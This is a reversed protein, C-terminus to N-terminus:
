LEEVIKDLQTYLHNLDKSNDVVYDARATKEDDSMQNDIRDQVQKASIGDRSQVRSIRVDKDAVIVMVKDCRSDLGAELLLPADLLVKLESDSERYEKVKDDIIAIIQTLMIENLKNKKAEDTFVIDALSQRMLSGNEDLIKHGEVGLEGEPGFVSDLVKLVPSGDATIHRSIADADIQLFGKDKLYESATSKGTGIGGTLGLIITRDNM